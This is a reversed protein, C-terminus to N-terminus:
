VSLLYSHRLRKVSNCVSKVVVTTELHKINYPLCKPSLPFSSSGKLLFFGGATDPQFHINVMFVWSDCTFLCIEWFDFFISKTLLFLLKTCIREMDAKSKGVRQKSTGERSVVIFFPIGEPRHFSFDFPITFVTFASSWRHQQLRRTNSLRTSSSNLCFDSSLRRFTAVDQLMRGGQKAHPTPHPNGNTEVGWEGGAPQEQNYIHGKLEQLSGYKVM